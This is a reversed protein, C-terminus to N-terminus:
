FSGHPQHVLKWSRESEPGRCQGGLAIQHLTANFDDHIAETGHREIPLQCSARTVESCPRLPVHSRPHHLSPRPVIDSLVEVDQNTPRDFVRASLQEPWCPPLCITRLSDESLQGLGFGAVRRPGHLRTHPHRPQQPPVGHQRAASCTKEGEGQQCASPTKTLIAGGRRRILPFGPKCLRDM